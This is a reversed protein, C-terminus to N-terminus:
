GIYPNADGQVKRILQNRKIEWLTPAYQKHWSEYQMREEKSLIFKYKLAMYLFMRSLPGKLKEEPEIISRSLPKKLIPLEPVLHHLDTEFQKLFPDKQRCCRIGGFRAGKNDICFKEEYCIKNKLYKQTPVVSFFQVKIEQAPCNECAKSQAIGHQNFPTEYLFTVPHTSYISLLSKKLPANLAGAQFSCLGLIAGIFLIKSKNLM